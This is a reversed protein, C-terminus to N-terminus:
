GRHAEKAKLGEQKTYGEYNGHVTQVLMTAEEKGKDDKYLEVGRQLLMM